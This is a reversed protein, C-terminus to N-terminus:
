YILIRYNITTCTRLLEEITTAARKAQSQEAYVFHVDQRQVPFSSPDFGRFPVCLVEAEDNCFDPSTGLPRSHRMNDRM